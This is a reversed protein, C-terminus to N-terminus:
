FSMEEEGGRAEMRDEKPSSNREGFASAGKEV